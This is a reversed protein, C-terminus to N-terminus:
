HIEPSTNLNKKSDYISNLFNYITILDEQDEMTRVNTVVKPAEFARVNTM